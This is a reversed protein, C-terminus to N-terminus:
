FGYSVSSLVRTREYDRDGSQTRQQRAVQFGVRMGAIYRGVGVGYTLVTEEDAPTGTEPPGVSAYTLVFHGVAGRVDWSDALRHTVSLEVGTQLYDRRDAQYSYQVDRQASVSFRTRGLMTYGLDVNSVRGQFPPASGDVFTRKLTGFEAHGSVAALPHFEVFSTVRVGDADREPELPFRNRYQEVGTGIMTFPTVAYRLRVGEGATNGGLYRELNTGDYVAEDTYDVSSRRTTLGFSTKGTLWVNVGANWGAIVRRVPVEIEFNQRHRANEYAGGVYPVLRGLLFEVRASDVTDTSRYQSVKQFYVFDLEGQARVRVAPLRFWAQIAPSVTATFDQVQPDGKNAYLVNDDWGLNFVRITPVVALSEFLVRADAPADLSGAQALVPTAAGPVLLATLTAAAGYSRVSNKAAPVSTTCLATTLRILRTWFVAESQSDCRTARPM